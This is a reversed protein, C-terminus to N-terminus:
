TTAQVGIFYTKDASSEYSIQSHSSQKLHNTPGPLEEDSLYFITCDRNDDSIEYTVYADVKPNFEYYAWAGM